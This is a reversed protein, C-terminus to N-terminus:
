YKVPLAHPSTCNQIANLHSLDPTSTFLFFARTFSMRFGSYIKWINQTYKLLIRQWKQTYLFFLKDIIHCLPSWISHMNHIKLSWFYETLCICYTPFVKSNLVFVSDFLFSFRFVHFLKTIFINFIFAYLLVYAICCVSALLLM